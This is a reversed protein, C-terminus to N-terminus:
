KINEKYSQAQQKNFCERLFGQLTPHNDETFEKWAVNEILQYLNKVDQQDQVEEKIIQTLIFKKIQKFM